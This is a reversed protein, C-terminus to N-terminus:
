QSWYFTGFYKLSLLKKRRRNGKGLVCPQECFAVIVDYLSTSIEEKLHIFNWAKSVVTM